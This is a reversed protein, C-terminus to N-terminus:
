EAIGPNHYQSTEFEAGTGHCVACAEQGNPLGGFTLVDSKAVGVQGGQSGFHGLAAASTHCTGCAQATPTTAPDDTWITEDLGIGLSVSRAEARAADYTGDVHCTDCNAISQPYTVDAAFGDFWSESAAHLAHIMIGMGFGAEAGDEVAALDANHCVICMEPNGNRNSGHAQLHNHCANCKDAEAAFQREAGASYYVVSDPAARQNGAVGDADTVGVAAPHGGLAIMASGTFDAPLATFYTVTYSGDMNVWGPNAAIDRQLANLYMRNPHGPGFYELGQDRDRFGGTNGLTDGNYNEIGPWSVYLNLSAGNATDFEPDNVIDYPTGAADTVRFTIVPTEGPGTNTASLIELVFDEGLAERFRQDGSIRSHISLADGATDITGDHCNACVGDDAVGVFGLDAEAAAHDFQYEAVGTVPDFNQAVLGNAHCGGCTKATSSANWADGDPAVATAEHCTECYTNSQPYTVESYDHSFDSFGWIIYPNVTPVGNVEFLRDEGMHIAHIMPAMDLSEGSDQDVTGPNHCTVCYDMSKRPGGHFAFEYHCSNCTDTDLINKTIGSGAGSDPVFDYVYNDPALPVEGEGDLRIELGVRHTLSPEWPVAIPATVNTVDTGFTYEYVGPATEVHSGGSFRSDTTAQVAVDLVDSGRGPANNAVDEVRNVYSQWYPLGGNVTPDTNPVLKAFTFWVYGSTIGEAPNGNADTVTFTVVPPSAITVGTITAELKGLAEIEEATLTSGDGIVIAGPTV